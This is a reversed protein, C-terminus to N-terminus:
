GQGSSNGALGILQRTIRMLDALLDLRTDLLAHLRHRTEEAAVADEAFVQADHLKMAAETQLQNQGLALGTLVQKKTLDESM